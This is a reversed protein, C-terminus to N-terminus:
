LLRASTQSQQEQAPGSARLGGVSTWTYVRRALWVIVLVLLITGLIGGGIYM